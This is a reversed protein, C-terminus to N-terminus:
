RRRVIIRQSGNANNSSTASNNSNRARIVIAFNGSNVSRGSSYYYGGNKSIGNRRPRRADRASNPPVGGSAYMRFMDRSVGRTNESSASEAFASAGAATVTLACCLVALGAPKMLYRM